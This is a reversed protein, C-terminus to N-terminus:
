WLQLMWIRERRDLPALETRHTYSPRSHYRGPNPLIAESVRLATQVVTARTQFTKRDKRMIHVDATDVPTAPRERTRGERRRRRGRALLTRAQVKTELSSDNETETETERAECRFKEHIASAVYCKPM